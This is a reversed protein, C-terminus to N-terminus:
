EGVMGDLTERIIDAHGCHRATEELMHGMIWRLSRRREDDQYWAALDDMGYYGIIEDSLATEKKYFDIIGEGTDDPEIRFDADSNDHHWPIYVDRGAMVYQFWQREVFALHKVLGLLTLSSSTPRARLQEESLGACKWLLTERQFELFGHTTSKEDGHFPPRLRYTDSM